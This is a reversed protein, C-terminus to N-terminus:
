TTAARYLAHYIACALSNHNRLKQPFNNSNELFASDNIGAWTKPARYLAQSFATWLATHNDLNSSDPKFERGNLLLFFFLMLTHSEARYKLSSM